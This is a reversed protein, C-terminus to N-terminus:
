QMLATKSSIMIKVDNAVRRHIQVAKPNMCFFFGGTSFIRCCDFIFVIGKHAQLHVIAFCHM